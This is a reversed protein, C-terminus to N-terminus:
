VTVTVNATTSLSTKTTVVVTLVSEGVTAGTVLGTHAGVTANANSSTFTLLNNDLLSPATGDNYFGYVQLTETGSVTLDVDGDAVGIKICHAFPDASTIVEKVLAYYGSGNCAGTYTVLANGGLPSTTAGSSSISFSQAGSFQFNPIEIQLEGIQAPSGTGSQSSAYLTYTVVLRIIKPVFASLVTFERASANTYFYRVCVSTGSALGSVTANKGVFTLTTWADDTASALKYWGVVAVSGSMAVPTQSVTITDAVTTTITETTTINSSTFIDGGGNLAMYNLDFLSDEMNVTFSGTHPLYGQIPNSVGGRIEEMTLALDFGATKLSNSTFIIDNTSKDFGIASGIALINKM